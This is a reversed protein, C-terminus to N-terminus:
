VLLNLICAPAYDPKIRIAEDIEVDREKHQPTGKLRSRVDINSELGAAIMAHTAADFRLRDPYQASFNGLSLVIKWDEYSIFHLAENYVTLAEEYEGKKALLLAFRGLDVPSNTRYSLVPENPFRKRADEVSVAGNPLKASPIIRVFASISWYSVQYVAKRYAELAKDQAGSAAYAEALEFRYPAHNTVQLEEYAKIATQYNQKRYATRATRILKQELQEALQTLSKQEETLPVNHSDRYQIDASQELLREHVSKLEQASATTGRLLFICLVSVVFLPKLSKM